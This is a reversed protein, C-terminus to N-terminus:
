QELQSIRSEFDANQAVLSENQSQLQEIIQQQEQIGKVLIPILAGLRVSKRSIEEEGLNMDHEDVLSPFVQELEQAIFGIKKEGVKAPHFEPIWEFNRVKLKKIDELKPTADVINTKLREDSTLTGSDSTWVDGDSYVRMRDAASDECKLFFTSNNDAANNTHDIILGNANTSATNDIRTAYTNTANASIHLKQSPSATGIGVNGSSDIRVREATNTRIALENAAPAHIAVASSSSGTQDLAYEDAVVDGSVDLEASPSTNGIGVRNTSLALSTNNGAGDSVQLANAGTSGSIGNTYGADLQLLAKYTNAPTLNQLDSM